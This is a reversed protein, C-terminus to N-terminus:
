AAAMPRLQQFIADVQKGTQALSGSNDIVFDAAAAKREDPWQAAMRRAVERRAAEMDGGVRGAFREVKQQPTCTVVVMKDFHRDAGAEYILAAEVLAVAKPDREGVERMWENQRAIVAPHVIRNLEHVRMSDPEEDGFAAEALRMRDITGDENLIARGFNRVVDEYVPQGPQMLEHAIKDAHILHAGREVFMRGVTSKGCALGGTLGVKIM